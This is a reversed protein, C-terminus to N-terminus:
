AMRVHRTIRYILRALRLDARFESADIGRVAPLPKMFEPSEMYLRLAISFYDISRYRAGAAANAVAVAILDDISFALAKPAGVVSSARFSPLRM